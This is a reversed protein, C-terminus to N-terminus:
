LGLHERLLDSESAGLADRALALAAARENVDYFGESASIVLFLARLRPLVLRASPRM